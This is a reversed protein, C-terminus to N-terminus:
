LICTQIDEERIIPNEKILRISKGKKEAVAIGNRFGSAFTYVPKTLWKGREDIYGFRGNLKAVAIGERFGFTQEFKPEITFRGGTDIYGWKSNKEVAASGERFSRANGFAPIMVLNGSPDIYGWKKEKRVAALGESFPEIRNYASADIRKKGDIGIYYRKKGIRVAALGESFVEADEYVAETIRVGTRARYGYLGGERYIEPENEKTETGKLRQSGIQRLTQKLAPIEPSPNNLLKALRYLGTRGTDIWHEKIHHLAQCCGKIAKEPDFLLREDEEQERYWEPYEILAYLATAILAISYDDLHTNYFTKGRRPHQFGPTGLEPSLLGKLAPIFACDYDILRLDGEPTVILNDPKLDGHAWEQDLLWLALEIFRETIKSLAERDKSRCKEALWNRLSIGEAWETLAIPHFSGQGHEDFLYIEGPLYRFPNLYPSPLANLYDAIAARRKERVPDTKTFCKMAFKRDHVFVSFIVANSGTCFDPLGQCDMDPIVKGLSRFRGSPNQMADLFHEINAILM